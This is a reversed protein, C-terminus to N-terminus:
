HRFSSSHRFTVCLSDVASTCGQPCKQILLEPLGQPEVAGPHHRGAVPGGDAGLQRAQEGDSVFLLDGAQYLGVNVLDLGPLDGQLRGVAQPLAEEAPDGAQPGAADGPPLHHRVHVGLLDLLGLTGCRPGSCSGGLGFPPIRHGLKGVLELSATPSAPQVPLDAQGLRLRSIFAFWWPLPLDLWLGWGLPTAADQLPSALAYLRLAKPASRVPGATLAGFTLCIATGHRLVPYRM